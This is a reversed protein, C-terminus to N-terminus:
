LDDPSNVNRFLAKDADTVPMAAVLGASLGRKVLSQLSRDETGLAEDVLVAMARPYVAALGHYLGDAVPVIGAPGLQDLLRGLFEQSMAPMDVALVLLWPTSMMAFAAQLGGLPGQGAKRDVVVTWPGAGPSWDLGTSIMLQAAGLGQAIGAQRRWLPTGSFELTAKPRGM